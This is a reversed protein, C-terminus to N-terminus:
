VAARSETGRRNGRRRFFRVLCLRRFLPRAREGVSLEAVAFAAGASALPIGRPQRGTRAAGGDLSPFKDGGRAGTGHRAYPALPDRLRAERFLFNRLVVPSPATRVRALAIARKVIRRNHNYIPAPNH